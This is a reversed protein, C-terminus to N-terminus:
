AVANRRVRRAESVDFEASSRPRDFLHGQALVCGAAKLLALQEPTEVGEATTTINLTRALSSVAGVIAACENRRALEAVFKRDIKIKDFPFSLLYSMSSYGIGFDDLAISIGLEQLEHLVTLNQDDRQLLVSETVELELRDPALGSEALVSKVFEVLNGSRIQVPSINVAVSLYTPWRAADRCARRLIWEGLPIILGTEEALPIFSSPDVLGRRSDRWRILAEAGVVQGTAVSVVSQYHLDFQERAVSNRLDMALTLRSRADREMEPEFLRWSNRGDAKACYLALDAKKLLEDIELGHDPALVIGASTEITLHHGDIEFPQAIVQLLREALPIAEDEGVATQLVTFEDGGLRAVVDGPRACARLRAAVEVLLSDGFAHGLSDNVEKFRDLDLLHLAFGVDRRHYREAARKVHEKFFARNTLSTLADYHALRSIKEEARKQATIDQHVSVSGGDAMPRRSIAYIRGDQLEDVAYGPEPRFAQDLRDAIYKDADLPSSGAAIRANLIELLTTGPKTQEPTLNYMRSYLENALVLRRDPGFMCVGHPMNALTTNLLVNTRELSKKDKERQLHQRISLITVAAILLSLLTAVSYAMRREAEVRAFVERTSLGVSIILPYSKVVRYTILRPVFDSLHGDIYHWGSPEKLYRKFVHGSSMDKGLLPAFRGSAARVFGDTGIVRIHGDVGTNVMDYIRTLYAPDLSAAVMGGFSGDPNEIRRTLQVSWKGTTRGIVPKSIFLEDSKADVHVRFHERDSLDVGRYATIDNSNLAIRGHRDVISVQLIEDRFLQASKLWNVLDFSAPNRLYQMRILQLSRDVEWISRSLHEEFAGTLNMSNQIAAQEATNRENEIFLDVSIWVLGILIAGLLASRHRLLPLWARVNKARRLLEMTWGLVM